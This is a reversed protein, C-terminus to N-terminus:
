ECNDSIPEDTIEVEFNINKFPTTLLFLVDGFPYHADNLYPYNVGVDGDSEGYPIIDRWIWKNLGESYYAWPKKTTSLQGDSSSLTTYFERITIPYHPQYFYGPPITSGNDNTQYVSDNFTIKHQCNSVVYETQEIENYECFDGILIDDKKPPINYYFNYLKTLSARQYTGVSINELSDVNNIGWWDDIVDQHFNFNWGYQLARNTNLLPKNFWGYYGKNIITAYFKTIPKFNNDYMEKIDFDNQFTFSYSQTGEKISVRQQLNPTLASYEMKQQTSFPNNEFGLNNINSDTENTLLKHLRVYYKSKTEGSNEINVIRKLTGTTGNLFTTGTYGLDQISFSTNANDYNPEGLLDVRFLNNNNYKISLEVYQSTQLNHNGGCRFTIYKVGNIVNNFLTFPIGDSAKFSITNGDLQKDVYSMKQETSSSFPYSLFVSWNYTSASQPKFLIHKNDYDTRIFNFENYQPFGNWRLGFTDPVREFNNFLIQNNEVVELGNTLYLFNKFGDYDTSGEIINSFINTIKGSIRFLTSNQREVQSQELLNVNRTRDSEIFEKQDSIFEAPISIIRETAGKYRESGKLITIDSQVGAM